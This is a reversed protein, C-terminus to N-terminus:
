GSYTTIDTMHDQIYPRKLQSVFQVCIQMKDAAYYAHSGQTWNGLHRIPMKKPM